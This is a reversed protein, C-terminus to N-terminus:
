FFHNSLEEVYGTSGCIYDLTQRCWSNGTLAQFSFDELILRIVIARMPWAGPAAAGGM